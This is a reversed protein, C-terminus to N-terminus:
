VRSPEIPRVHDAKGDAASVITTHHAKTARPVAGSPQGRREARQPKVRDIGSTTARRGILSCSAACDKSPIALVLEPM